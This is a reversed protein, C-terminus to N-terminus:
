AVASLPAAPVSLARPRRVANYDNIMDRPRYPEDLYAMETPDLRITTADLVAEVHEPQDAGIIPVTVNGTNMVWAQAIQSSTKGHARAVEAVRRAIERDIEDGFWDLFMDHAVRAQSGGGALYGRALPSFTTVAIGEDQCYPMMEREEERYLLSYQCQMNVFRTWGNKEAVHNMKAFQWAYMTSAGIYRAKGARVIDHLAEMTEEIPTQPDFAHVIYLDVHDTGLRKLSRDISRMLHKRSLGQDNPDDSMAYFAKTALVLRDRETMSLLARGVVEENLGTSYWDAMDFFTVGVDLAKRLIPRSRDEDLVWGKWKSSGIGMTGLCLQSTKLGTRGFRISDM